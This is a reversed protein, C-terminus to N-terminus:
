QSKRSEGLIALLEPSKNIYDQESEALELHNRFYSPHIFLTQTSNKKLFKKKSLMCEEHQGRSYDDDSSIISVASYISASLSKNLTYRKSNQIDATTLYGLKLDYFFDKPTRKHERLLKLKVVDDFHHLGSLHYLHERLFRIHIEKTGSESSKSKLTYIYEVDLLKEFADAIDKLECYYSIPMQLELFSFLGASQLAKDM